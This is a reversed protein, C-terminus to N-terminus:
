KGDTKLKENQKDESHRASEEEEYYKGEIVELKASITYSKDQAPMWYEWHELDLEADYMCFVKLVCGDSFTLMVNCSELYVDEVILHELRRAAIAVPGTIATIDDESTALLKDNDFIEWYRWIWLADDNSFKILLISNAGGGARSYTVEEGCLEMIDEQLM